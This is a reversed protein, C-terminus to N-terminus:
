RNAADVITAGFLSIFLNHCWNFVMLHLLITECQTNHSFSGVATRIVAASSVAAREKRIKRKNLLHRRDTQNADSDFYSVSHRSSLLNLNHIFICFRYAIIVDSHRTMQRRHACKNSNFCIAQQGCLLKGKKKLPLGFSLIPWLIPM